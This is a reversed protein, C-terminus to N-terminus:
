LTEAEGDVLKVTLREIEKPKPDPDSWSYKVTVIAVRDAIKVRVPKDEKPQETMRKLIESKFRKRLGNYEAVTPKLDQIRQDATLIDDDSWLANMTLGAGAKEMNVALRKGLKEVGQEFQKQTGEFLVEGTNGAVIKVEPEDNTKSM